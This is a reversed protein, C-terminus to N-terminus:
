TNKSQLYLGLNIALWTDGQALFLELLAQETQSLDEQLMAVLQPPTFLPIVMVAQNHHYELELKSNLKVQDGAVMKVLASQILSDILEYNALLRVEALYFKHILASLKQVQESTNQWGVADVIPVQKLALYQNIVPLSRLKSM